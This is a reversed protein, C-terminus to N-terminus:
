FVSTSFSHMGFGHVIYVTLVVSMYGLKQLYECICSDRGIGMCQYNEYYIGIFTYWIFLIFMETSITPYSNPKTKLRFM